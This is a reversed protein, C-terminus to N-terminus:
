VTRDDIPGIVGKGLLMMDVSTRDFDSMEDM